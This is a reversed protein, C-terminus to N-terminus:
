DLNQTDFVLVMCSTLMWYSLPFSGIIEDLYAFRNNKDTCSASFWFNGSIKFESAFKLSKLMLMLVMKIALMELLVILLLESLLLAEIMELLM